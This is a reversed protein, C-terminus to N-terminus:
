RPPLPPPSQQSGRSGSEDGVQSSPPRLMHRARLRSVAWLFILWPSARLAAFLLSRHFGLGTTFQGYAELVIGIAALYNFWASLAPRRVARLTESWLLVVLVLPGAKGVLFALGLALAKSELAYSLAALAAGKEQASGAGAEILARGVRWAAEMQASAGMWTLVAGIAGGLAVVGASISCATSAGWLPGLARDPEHVPRSPAAGERSSM